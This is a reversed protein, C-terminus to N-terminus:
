ALFMLPFVFVLCGIAMQEIDLAAKEDPIRWAALLVAFGIEGTTM